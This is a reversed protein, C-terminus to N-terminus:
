TEDFQYTFTEAPITGPGATQICTIQYVVFDGFDGTSPNSITGTVSIPAAATYTFADVPVGSLTAGYAGSTAPSLADGNTGTTGTAQVYSTATAVYCSVGTGFGNAGDTYWKLNNITGAPTVDCSLRTAVWFSAAIKQVTGTAGGAGNGARGTIEFTNAAVNGVKWIGNANTNTTHGTIVVTDGNVLGHANATVVIPTANTSSVINTAAGSTPIPIPNATGPAANDSTSARNTTSTIDTKTPSGSAGTWRRITVTAAM